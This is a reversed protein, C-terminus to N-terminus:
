YVQPPKIILSIETNNIEIINSAKGNKNNPENIDAIICSYILSSKKLFTIGLFGISPDITPTTKPKKIGAHSQATIGIASLNFFFFTGKFTHIENISDDGIILGTAIKLTTYANLDVIGSIAIQLNTPPTITEITTPTIILM